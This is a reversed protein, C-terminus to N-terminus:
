SQRRIPQFTGGSDWHDEDDIFSDGFKHRLGAFAKGTWIGVSFNRGIGYYAYGEELDEIAICKDDRDKM